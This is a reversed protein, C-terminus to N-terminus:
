RRFASKNFPGGRPQVVGDEFHELLSERCSGLNKVTARAGSSPTHPKDFRSVRTNSPYLEIGRLEATRERAEVGVQILLERFARKLLVAAGEVHHRCDFHELMELIWSM